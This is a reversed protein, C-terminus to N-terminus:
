IGIMFFVDAYYKAVEYSEIIVGIERNKTFSNENWNISSILVSKNDVIM